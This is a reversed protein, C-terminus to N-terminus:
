LAVAKLHCINAYTERFKYIKLFQFFHNTSINLDNKVM